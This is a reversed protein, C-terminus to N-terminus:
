PVVVEDFPSIPLTTKMVLAYSVRDFVQFVMLTGSRVPPLQVMEKSVTDEIMKGRQHTVFIHGREIGDEAGKNIVVVQHQAIQSVGDVVSIIRANELSGPPLLHPIFDENFSRESMSLLRDGIEIEQSADTITLTTPDDDKVLKAHGLHIAEYILVEDDEQSDRYAQGLRVIMFESENSLHTLGRAYITMDSTMLVANNENGMIYGAHEIEDETVVKPRNLFQRISEMRIIKIPREQSIVRVTPSLKVTRGRKIQLSQQGDQTLLSVSDGVLIHPVQRGWLEKALLPDTVFRALVDTLTDGAVVTYQEPANSLLQTKPGLHLISTTEAALLTINILGTLFLILFLKNM